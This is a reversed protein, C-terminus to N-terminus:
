GLDRAARPDPPWLRHDLVDFPMVDKARPAGFGSLVGAHRGLAGGGRGGGGGCRGRSTSSTDMPRSSRPEDIAGVSRQHGSSDGGVM